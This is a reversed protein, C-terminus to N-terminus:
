LHLSLPLHAPTPSPSLQRPEQKWLAQYVQSLTHQSCTSLSLSTLLRPARHCKDRSKSGYRKTSKHYPTSAVPPSLPTLLRPARHCKDRSKSGYRKTSKHYPTSAVPPSLSPPSCAHPETVSTEARAEM